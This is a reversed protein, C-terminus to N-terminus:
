LKEARFNFTGYAHNLVVTVRWLGATGATSAQNGSALLPSTYVQTSDADYVYVTVSGDTVASSHDITAQTGSNQWTYSVTTTVNAVGTAQFQFADATNIIEPEFAALPSAPDSGCGILVAMVTILAIGTSVVHRFSM